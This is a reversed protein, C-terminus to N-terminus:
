KKNPRAGKNKNKKQQKKGNAVSQNETNQEQNEMREPDLITLINGKLEFSDTNLDAVLSDGKLTMAKQIITVPDNSTVLNKVKDYHASDSSVSLDKNLVVTVGGFFDGSSLTGEELTLSAQKATLDVVDGNDRFFHVLADEVSTAGTAPKYVAGNAIVEWVKKGNKTESRHFKKLRLEPGSLSLGVSVGEVSQQSDAGSNKPSAEELAAEGPITQGKPRLVIVLALFGAILICAAAISQKRSLYM